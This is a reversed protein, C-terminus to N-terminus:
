QFLIPFPPLFIPLNIFTLMQPPQFFFHLFFLFLYFSSIPSNRRLLFRLLPIIDLDNVISKVKIKM